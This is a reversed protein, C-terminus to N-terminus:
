ELAARVRPPVDDRRPIGSLHVPHGQRGAVREELEVYGVPPEGALEVLATRIDEESHREVDGGIGQQGHHHGLLAAIDGPVEHVGEPVDVDVEIMEVLHAFLEGPGRTGQGPHNEIAFHARDEVEVVPVKGELPVVGPRRYLSWHSHSLM